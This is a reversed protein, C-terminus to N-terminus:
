GLRGASPRHVQLAEAGVLVEFEVDGRGRVGIVFRSALSFLESSAGGKKAWGIWLRNNRHSPPINFFLHSMPFLLFSFSFFNWPVFNLTVSTRSPKCFFPRVDLPRKKPPVNVNVLYESTSTRINVRLLNKKIGKTEQIHSPRRRKRPYRKAGGCGVGGFSLIVTGCGCFEELKSQRLSSGSISRSRIIGGTQYM